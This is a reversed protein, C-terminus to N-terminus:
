VGERAYAAYFLVRGCLEALGVVALTALLVAPGSRGLPTFLLGALAVGAILLLLRVRLLLGHAQTLQRLSREAAGPRGALYVLWLPLLLFEGGLLAITGAALGQLQAAPLGGGRGVAVLAGAALGGLLLATVLFAAPTAWSDWAPVTRLRYAWSMALLLALGLLAASWFVVARLLPPGRDFWLLGAYLASAAAFLVTGWIERSLWSSRANWLARWALLPSGLHLLAAALGLAMLAVVTLFGYAPDLGAPRYVAGLM